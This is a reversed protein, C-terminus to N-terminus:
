KAPHQKDKSNLLGKSVLWQEKRHVVLVKLKQTINPPKPPTQPLTHNIKLGRLKNIFVSSFDFSYMFSLGVYFLDDTIGLRNMHYKVEVELILDASM